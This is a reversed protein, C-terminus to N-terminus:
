KQPRYKKNWRAIEDETFVQVEKKQFFIGNPPPNKKESMYIWVISIGIALTWTSFKNAPSGQLLITRRIHNISRRFM